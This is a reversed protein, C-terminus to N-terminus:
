FVFKVALQVQRPSNSTNTILGFTSSGFSAAPNAFNPHNLINFFDGRFEASMNERIPIRKLFSLDLNISGPGFVFDNCVGPAVIKNSGNRAPPTFGLGNVPNLWYGGPTDPTQGLKMSGVNCNPRNTGGSNSYSSWSVAPLTPTAALSGSSALGIPFPTGTARTLIGTVSWGGVVDDLGRSMNSGFRRNRGFPLSWVTSNTLRQHPVESNPGWPSYPGTLVPYPLGGAPHEVMEIGAAGSSGFGNTDGYARAYTYSLLTSLGRTTRKQFGVQLSNYKSTGWYNGAAVSNLLPYPRNAQISGDVGYPANNAPFGLEMGHSSNGVYAVSLTSSSSVLYQLAANWEAIRGVEYKPYSANVNFKTSPLLRTNVIDPNLPTALNWPTPATV